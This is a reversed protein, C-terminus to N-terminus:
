ENTQDANEAAIEKDEADELTEAIATEFGEGTADEDSAIM